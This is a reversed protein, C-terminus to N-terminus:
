ILFVTMETMRDDLFGFCKNPKVMFLECLLDSNPDWPLGDLPWRHVMSPGDCGWPHAMSM